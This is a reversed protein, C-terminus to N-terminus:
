NYSSNSIYLNEVKKAIGTWSLDNEIESMNVKYNINQVSILRITEVFKMIWEEKDTGAGIVWSYKETYHRMEGVESCLVPIGAAMYESLKIPFRSKNFSNDEMPLLGIDLAAAFDRTELPTLSGLYDTYQLALPSTELLEEPNPGCVAFRVKLNNVICAELAEFCWKLENTTRGMFGVYLENDILRLRKRATKKDTIQYPWFGNHLIHCDDNGGRLVLDKLYKSCTTMPLKLSPIKKEFYEVLTYNWKDLLNNQKNSYLGGAWLDDWDFITVKSLKRLRFQWPLYITLFSQFVHLIDCSKYNVFLRNIATIPHNFTGLYQKGRCGPMIFYDIGDRVEKREKVNDGYDVCYVTVQHGLAILGIGINHWRFYTGQTHSFATLFNIKLTKPLDTKLLDM